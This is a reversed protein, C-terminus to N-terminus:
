HRRLIEELAELEESTAQYCILPEESSKFATVDAPDVAALTRETKKTWALFDSQGRPASCRDRVGIGERVLPGVAATIHQNRKNTEQRENEDHQIAASMVETTSELAVMTKATAQSTEQLNSLVTLEQAATKSQQHMGSIALGIELGIMLVILLELVLNIHHRNTEVRDREANALRNARRELENVYFQAAMFDSQFYFLSQADTIGRGPALVQNVRKTIEEDSLERLEELTTINWRGGM